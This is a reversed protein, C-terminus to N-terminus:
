EGASPRQRKMRDRLSPLGDYNPALSEITKLIEAAKKEDRDTELTIIFLAHLTPIHRPNQKIAADLHKRAEDPRGESWLAAGLLSRLNVDDPQLQVAREWLSIAEAIRGGAFLANAYRAVMDADNPNREVASRLSDLASRSSEGGAVPPHNSPLETQTRSQAQYFAVVYAVSAGLIVGLVAFHLSRSSFM